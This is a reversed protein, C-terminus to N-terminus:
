IDYPRPETGLSRFSTPAAACVDRQALESLQLQHGPAVPEVVEPEASLDSRESLLPGHDLPRGRGFGGGRPVRSKRRSLQPLVADAAFRAGLVNVAMVDAWDQDEGGLPADARLVGANYVLVDPAGLETMSTQLAARLGAPDSADASFGRVNQGTSALEATYTDLKATDRALLAVAHGANAFTRALGLGPGVGVIM